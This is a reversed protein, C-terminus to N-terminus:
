QDDLQCIFYHRASCDGDGMLTYSLTVCDEDEYDDPENSYWEFFTVPKGSAVSIFEKEKERDNIGLWYYEKATKKYIEALEDKNQFAALHGEKRRCYAAANTWNKKMNNEIYFYRTGIKQFGPPINAQEVDQVDSKRETDALIALIDKQIRGMNSIHLKLNAIHDYIPYLGAQCFSACQTPADSLKCIGDK